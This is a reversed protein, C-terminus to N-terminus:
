ASRGIRLRWYIWLLNFALFVVLAVWASLPAAQSSEFISWAIGLIAGISWIIKLNLMGRYAEQDANRGLFSEIGIGFLAAAVLRTAFPDVRVWGFFHLTAEPAIMLPLALLIDVAFHVVFWIKLAPPVGNVTM